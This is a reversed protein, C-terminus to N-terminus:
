GSTRGARRKMEFFSLFRKCLRMVPTSLCRERFVDITWPASSKLVSENDGAPTMAPVDSGPKIKGGDFPTIVPAGTIIQAPFPTRAASPVSTIAKAPRSNSRDFLGSFTQWTHRSIRQWAYRGATAPLCPRRSTRYNLADLRPRSATQRPCGPHM